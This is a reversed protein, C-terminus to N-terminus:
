GELRALARVELSLPLATACPHRCILGCIEFFWSILKSFTEDRQLATYCYKRWGVCDKWPPKLQTLSPQDDREDPNAM